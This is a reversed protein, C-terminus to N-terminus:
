KMEECSAGCFSRMEVSSGTTSLLSKTVTATFDRDGADL